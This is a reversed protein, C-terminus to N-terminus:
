RLTAGPGSPPPPTEADVPLWLLASLDGLAPPLDVSSDSQGVQGLPLATRRPLAAPGLGGGGGGNGCALSAGSLREGDGPHTHASRGTGQPLAAGRPGGQGTPDDLFGRM